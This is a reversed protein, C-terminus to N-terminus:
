LNWRAGFRIRIINGEESLQYTESKGKTLFQVHFIIRKKSGKVGNWCSRKDLMSSFGTTFGVGFFVVVVVVEVVGVVVVVVLELVVVVVVVGRVVVILLRSRNSLRLLTTGEVLRM